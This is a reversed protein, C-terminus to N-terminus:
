IGAAIKAAKRPTRILRAIAHPAGHNQKHISYGVALLYDACIDPHVGEAAAKEVADAVVGSLYHLSRLGQLAKAEKSNKGLM